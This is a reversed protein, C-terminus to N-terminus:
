ELLTPDEIELLIQKSKVAKGVQILAGTTITNPYQTLQGEIGLFLPLSPIFNWGDSSLVGTDAIIPKGGAAVATRTLGVIATALEPYRHDAYILKGESNLAVLRDASLPVAAEFDLEPLIPPPSQDLDPTFIGYIRDGIVQNVGWASQTPIRLIFRGTKGDIVADAEALNRIRAPMLMPDVAYGQMREQAANVGPADAQPSKNDQTNMPVLYATITLPEVVPIVNGTDQDVTLQGNAVSFTLVSNAPFPSTSM